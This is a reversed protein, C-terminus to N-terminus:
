SDRPSPSTYLLCTTDGSSQRAKIANIALRQGADWRNFGDSDFRIRRLLDAESEDMRLKVPASFGRLVSVAPRGGVNEFVFSQEAETLTIVADKEGSIGAAACHMPVDGNPGVLGTRIPIVFPLKTETEPTERCHQAFTLTLEDRGEDYDTTVDIEPTGAQAYWRKFQTLDKGSVTEMCTVFDDITVAQGDHRDFYLDTGQRFLDPGLLNAQMRM